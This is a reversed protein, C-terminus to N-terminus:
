EELTKILYYLKRRMLMGYAYIHMQIDYADNLFLSRFTNKSLHWHPFQQQRCNTPFNEFTRQLYRRTMWNKAVYRLISKLSFKNPLSRWMRCMNQMSKRIEKLFWTCLVKDLCEPIRECAGLKGCLEGVHGRGQAYWIVRGVHSINLWNLQSNIFLWRCLKM